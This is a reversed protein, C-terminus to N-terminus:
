KYIDMNIRQGHCIYHQEVILVNIKILVINALTLLHLSILYTIIHNNKSM